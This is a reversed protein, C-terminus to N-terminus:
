CAGLLRNIMLHFFYPFYDLNKKQIVTKKLYSKFPVIVTDYKISLM